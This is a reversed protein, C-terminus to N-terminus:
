GCRAGTIRGRKDVNINLRDARFDMTMVSGPELWRVTRAGSVRKARMEVRPGRQQGVFRGLGNADCQVGPAPMEPRGDHTCGGAALAILPIAFRIM